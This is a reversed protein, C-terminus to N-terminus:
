GRPGAPRFIPYWRGTLARWSPVRSHGIEARGDPLLTAPEPEDAEIGNVLDRNPFLHINRPISLLSRFEQLDATSCPFKPVPYFKM